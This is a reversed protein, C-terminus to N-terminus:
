NVAVLSWCILWSNLATSFSVCMGSFTPRILAAAIIILEARCNSSSAIFKLEGRTTEQEPEPRNPLPFRPSYLFIILSYIHLLLRRRIKCRLSVPQNRLTVGISHIHYKHSHMKSCIGCIAWEINSGSKSCYLM